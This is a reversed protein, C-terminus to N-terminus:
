LHRFSRTALATAIRRTLTLAANADGETAADRVAAMLRPGPYAFFEEIAALDALATTFDGRKGEGTAWARATDVLARWQDARAGPGAFFQDIRVTTPVSTPKADKTM